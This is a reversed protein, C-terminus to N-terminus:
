IVVPFTGDAAARQHCMGMRSMPLLKSSWSLFLSVHVLPLTSAVLVEWWWGTLELLQAAALLPTGWRKKKDHIRETKEKVHKPSVFTNINWESSVFSFEFPLAATRQCPLLWSVASLGQLYFPNSDSLVLARHLLAPPPAAPVNFRCAKMRRRVLALLDWIQSMTTTYCM